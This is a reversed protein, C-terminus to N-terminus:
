LVTGNSQVAKKAYQIAGRTKYLDMSACVVKRQANIENRIAEGAQIVLPDAASILVSDLDLSDQEDLSTSSRRSSANCPADLCLDTEADNTKNKSLAIVTIITITVSILTFGIRHYM